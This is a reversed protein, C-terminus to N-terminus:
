MNKLTFIEKELSVVKENLEQMAKVLMPVFISYKVSKTTTGIENGDKDKDSIEEVLSPFVQELEQAVVGLQKHQEYDGKLNYNRVRVKLLKELKPTADVINEKLKIDSITGYVGNANQINGNGYILINQVTGNSSVGNFHNWGTGSAATGNSFISQGSGLNHTISLKSNETGSILVKENGISTAGIGLRGSADIRMSEAGGETFAITDAAPFFIGTNTDGTTTIAPDSVSGASFTAVGTAGLTTFNGAAATNAGVIGDFNAANIRGSVGLGGTIVATGTTTTTSATNATFTTAANSTLTTFAGTSRTSAGISTNNITSAATPNITLAGAPSIAVTGTGTPSISVAANAPNINTAVELSLNSAGGSGWQMQAVGSGNKITGGASGAEAQITPTIVSLAAVSRGATVNAISVQKTAGGQVIPLVETGALPVTSAPLGSIKVDAM